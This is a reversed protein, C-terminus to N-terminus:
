LQREALEQQRIFGRLTKEVLSPMGEFAVGVEWLEGSQFKRVLKGLLLLNKDQLTIELLYRGGQAFYTEKERSVAFGLGGLSIDKAVVHVWEEKEPGHEENELRFLGTKLLCPVRVHQRRQMRRAEGEPAVWLLPVSLRTAGKVISVECQYMAGTAEVSMKLQVNRHVPLLAGKMMPHALGVAEADVDEVRSPYTGKYLGAEITLTVKSGLNGSLMSLFEAPGM